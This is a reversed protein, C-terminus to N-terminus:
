AYVESLLFDSIVLWNKFTSRKIKRTKASGEFLPLMHNVEGEGMFRLLDDEEIYRIMLVIFLFFFFFSSHSQLLRLLLSVLSKTSLDSTSM